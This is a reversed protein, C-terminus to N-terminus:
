KQDLEAYGTIFITKDLLSVDYDKNRNHLENKISVRHPEGFYKFTVANGDNEYCNTLEEDIWFSGEDNYNAEKWDKRTTVGDIKDIRLIRTNDLVKEFRINTNQEDIAYYKKSSTDQLIHYVFNQRSSTEDVNGNRVIRTYYFSDVYKFHHKEKNSMLGKRYSKGAKFAYVIIVIPFAVCIITGIAFVLLSYKEFITPDIFGWILFGFFLVAFITSGVKIKKILEKAKNEM